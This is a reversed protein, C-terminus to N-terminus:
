VGTAQRYQKMIHRAEAFSGARHVLTVGTPFRKLVRGSVLQEHPVTVRILSVEYRKAISAMSEGDQEWAKQANDLQTNSLRPM